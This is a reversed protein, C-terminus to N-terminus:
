TCCYYVEFACVYMKFYLSLLVALGFLTFNNPPTRYRAYFDLNLGPTRYRASRKRAFRKRAIICLPVNGRAFRLVRFRVRQMM